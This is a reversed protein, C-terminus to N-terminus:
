ILGLSVIREVIAQAAIEHGKANPHWPDYWTPCHNKIDFPKYPKYYELLDVVNLGAHKAALTLFNHINQYSYVNFDNNKEFNPHIMFVVPINNKKALDGIKELGKIIEHKYVGHLFQHYEKNINRGKYKEKMVLVVEGAKGSVSPLLATRAKKSECSITFVIVTILSLIFVKKM